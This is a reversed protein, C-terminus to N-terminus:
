QHKETDPPQALLLPKPTEGAPQPVPWYTTHVPPKPTEGAPQPVPWYTTHVPPSRGIQFGREEDIMGGRDGAQSAIDFATAPKGFHTRRWTEFPETTSGIPPLSEQENNIEQIEAPTPLKDANVETKQAFHTIGDAISNFCYVEAKTQSRKSLDQYLAANLFTKKGYQTAFDGDRTVIWLRSSPSCRTLIQEWTLQDGLPDAKKGPATRVRGLGHPPAFLRGLFHV